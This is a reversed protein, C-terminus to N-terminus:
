NKKENNKKNKNFLLIQEKLKNIESDKNKIDKEKTEIFSKLNSNETRLITIENDKSANYILKGNSYFAGIKEKIKEFEIEKKHFNLIISEQYDINIKLLFINQYLKRIKNENERLMSEYKLILENEKLLSEFLSTIKIFFINIRKLLTAGNQPINKELVKKINNIISLLEKKNSNNNM